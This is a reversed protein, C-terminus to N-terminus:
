TPVYQTVSLNLTTNSINIRLRSNSRYSESDRNREDCGERNAEDEPVESKAKDTPHEEERFLAVSDGKEPARNSVYKIKGLTVKPIAWNYAEVTMRLATSVYDFLRQMM